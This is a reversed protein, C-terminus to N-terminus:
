ELTIGFKKMILKANERDKPLLAFSDFRQYYEKAKIKDGFCIAYLVALDFIAQSMNTEGRENIAKLFYQESEICRNEAGYLRAFETYAIFNLQDKPISLLIKEAEKFNKGIRFITALQGKALYNKPYKRIFNILEEASLRADLPNFGLNRSFDLHILANRQLFEKSISNDRVYLFGSNDFYVLTWKNSRSLIRPLQGYDQDILMTNIQNKDTVSNLEKEFIIPEYLYFHISENEDYLDDQADLLIKNGNTYFFYGTLEPSTFINDKLQHKKIYSSQVDPIIFLKESPQFFLFAISIAFLLYLSVVIILQTLKNEIRMFGYNLILAFIPLTIFSALPIFRVWLMSFLFIFIVSILPKTIYIFKRHNRVLFVTSLILFFLFYIVFISYYIPQPANKTFNQYLIKMAGGLTGFMKRNSALVTFTPLFYVYIFVSYPNLLSSLFSAFLAVFLSLQLRKNVFIFVIEQIMLLCFIFAPIFIYGGSLNAFLIFIFPLFWIQLSKNKYWNIYYNIMILILPTAFILPHIRWFSLSLIIGLSLIFRRIFTNIELKKLLSNLLYLSFILLGCLISILGANSPYKTLKYFIIDSLWSHTVFELSPEVNKYSIDSHSPIKKHEVIFKGLGLHLYSDSSVPNSVVIKLALILSGILILISILSAIKKILKNHLSM